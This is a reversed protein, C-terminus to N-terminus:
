LNKCKAIGNVLSEIEKNGIKNNSIKNTIFTKLCHM